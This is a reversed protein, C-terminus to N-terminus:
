FKKKDIELLKQTMSKGSINFILFFYVPLKMYFQSFDVFLNYSKHSGWSRNYSLKLYSSFM